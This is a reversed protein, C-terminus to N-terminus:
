NTKTEDQICLCNGSFGHLDVCMKVGFRAQTYVLCNDLLFVIDKVQYLHKNVEFRYLCLVFSKINLSFM